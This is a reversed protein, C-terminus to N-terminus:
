TPPASIHTHVSTHTHTHTQTHTHTGHTKVLGVPSVSILVLPIYRWENLERARVRECVTLFDRETEWVGEIVCVCVCVCVCVSEKPRELWRQWASTRLCRVESKTQRKELFWCFFREREWGRERERERERQETHYFRDFIGRFRGLICFRTDCARLDIRRDLVNIYCIVVPLFSSCLQTIRRDNM